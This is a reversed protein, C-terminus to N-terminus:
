FLMVCLIPHPPCALTYYDAVFVIVRMDEHELDGIGKELQPSM